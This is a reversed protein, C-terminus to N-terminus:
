LWPQQLRLRQRHCDGSRRWRRRRRASLHSDGAAGGAAAVRAILEPRPPLTVGAPVQKLAVGGAVDVYPIAGAGGGAGLVEANPGFVSPARRAGEVGM